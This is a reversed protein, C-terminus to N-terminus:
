TDLLAAALSATIPAGRDRKDLWRRAEWELQSAELGLLAFSLSLLSHNFSLLRVSGVPPCLCCLLRAPPLLLQQQTPSTRQALAFTCKFLFLFMTQALCWDAKPNWPYSSLVTCRPVASPKHQTSNDRWDSQSSRKAKRLYVCQKDFVLVLASKANDSAVKSYWRASQGNCVLVSCSSYNSPRGREAAHLFM